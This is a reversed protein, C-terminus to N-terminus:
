VNPTSRKSSARLLRNWSRSFFHAMARFILFIERAPFHSVEETIFVKCNRSQVSQIAEHRGFFGRGNSKQKVNKPHDITFFNQLKDGSFYKVRFDM